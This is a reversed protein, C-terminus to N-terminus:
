ITDTTIYVMQRILILNKGVLRLDQTDTSVFSFCFPRKTVSLYLFAKNNWKIVNKM